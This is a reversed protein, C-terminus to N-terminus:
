ALNRSYTQGSIPPTFELRDLEYPASFYDREEFVGAPVFLELIEEPLSDRVTRSISIKGAETGKKELHAAYNIVESVIRGTNNFFRIKGTDIAVRLRIDEQIISKIKLNFIPMLRQIELGCLVGRVIHEKFTFASIGGDGAWSWMRGNYEKLRSKLFQWLMFYVKEMKKIGYRQVKSSNGVIDISMVTVNYIKGDKLSGWNIMESIDTRKNMLKKREFDYVLGETAMKHLLNEIGDINVHRGAIIGDDLEVILEILQPLKKQEECHSILIKSSKRPSLSVHPNAGALRNTDYNKFILTGIENIEDTKFNKSVIEILDNTLGPSLLM